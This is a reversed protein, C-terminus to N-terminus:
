EGQGASFGQYSKEGSDKSIFNYLNEIKFVDFEESILKKHFENILILNESISNKILSEDILFRLMWYDYTENFDSILDGDSPWVKLGKFMISSLSIKDKFESNEILSQIENGFKSISIGRSDIFFDFGILEKKLNEEFLFDKYLSKDFEKMIYGNSNQYSDQNKKLILSKEGFRKIIEDAFEMTGVKQKSAGGERFIDKTHVGDEITKFFANEILEAKKNMGMHRLMLIAGNLFASPNATQKGAMLPASGHIAEFMSYKSGINASGALGVSGSIESAIDSIIDGYLNETVIVDFVEPRAAIRASGIDIIYRESEIDPYNKAVELFANYFMGDAIKMINDKIMCTVKKRGNARAYEFAFHCIKLSGEKTLLKLSTFAGNTQRYEIGSYIDEENERIVVLDMKKPSNEIIPYYSISPRVNAFLGLMKRVTVNLSKYGGGTPTTIPAKLMVPNKKIIEWAKEDIGSLINQNYLKEGVVAEEFEIEDEQINNKRLYEESSAIIKLVAETIEPGIGDGKILTVHKKNM